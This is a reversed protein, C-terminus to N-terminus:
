GIVRAQALAEGDGGAVLHLALIVVAGAHLSQLAVVVLCETKRGQPRATCSTPGSRSRVSRGLSEASSTRSVGGVAGLLGIFGLALGSLVLHVANSPRAHTTSTDPTTM